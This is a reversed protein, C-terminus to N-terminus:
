FWSDTEHRDINSLPITIFPLGLADTKVIAQLVKSRNETGTKGVYYYMESIGHFKELTLINLKTSEDVGPVYGFPISIGFSDIDTGLSTYFVTIVSESKAQSDVVNAGFRRSLEISLRHDAYSKLTSDSLFYSNIFVKKDRLEDLHTDTLGSILDDISHTVLRQSTSGNLSDQLDRTSCASLLFCSLLLLSLTIRIM